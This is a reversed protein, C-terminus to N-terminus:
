KDDSPEKPFDLAAKAVECLASACTGDWQKADICGWDAIRQLATRLKANEAEAREARERENMERTVAKAVYLLSESYGYADPTPLQEALTTRTNCGAIGGCGALQVRCQELNALAAALEREMDALEQSLTTLVNQASEEWSADPHAEAWAIVKSFAAETRPMDSTM